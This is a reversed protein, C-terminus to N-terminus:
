RGGGSLVAPPESVPLEAPFLAAYAVAALLTPALVWWLRRHTARQARRM